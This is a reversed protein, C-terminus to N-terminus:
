RLPREHYAAESRDSELGLVAAAAVAEEVGLGM